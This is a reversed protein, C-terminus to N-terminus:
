EVPDHALESGDETIRSGDEEAEAGTEPDAGDNGRRVGRLSAVLLGIGLVLASVPLLWESLRIDVDTDIVSAVAIILFMAGAFFSLPDFAHKKM